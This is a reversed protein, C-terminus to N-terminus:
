LRLPAVGRHTCTHLKDRINNQQTALFAAVADGGDGDGDDDDVDTSKTQTQTQTQTRRASMSPRSM